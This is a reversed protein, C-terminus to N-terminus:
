YPSARYRRMCGGNQAMEGPGCRPRPPVYAGGGGIISVQRPDDVDIALRRFGDIERVHVTGQVCAVKGDYFELDSQQPLIVFLRDGIFIAHRAAMPNAARGCADIFQGDDAITIDSSDGHGPYLNSPRNLPVPQAFGQAGASGAILLATLTVLCRALSM